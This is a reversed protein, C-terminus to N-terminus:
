LFPQALNERQACLIAIYSPFNLDRKTPLVNDFQIYISMIGYIIGMGVASYITNKVYSMQSLM